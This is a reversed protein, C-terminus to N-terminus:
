SCAQFSIILKGTYGCRECFTWRDATAVQPAFNYCAESIGTTTTGTSSFSYVNITGVKPKGLLATTAAVNASLKGVVIRSAYMPRKGLQRPSPIFDREVYELDRKIREVQEDTFANLKDAM